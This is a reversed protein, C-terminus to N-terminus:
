PVRALSAEISWIELSEQRCDFARVKIGYDAGYGNSGPVGPGFPDRSGPATAVGGRLHVLGALIKRADAINCRLSVMTQYANPNRSESVFGSDRPSVKWGQAVQPTYRGRALLTGLNRGTLDLTPPEDLVMSLSMVWDGSGGVQTTPTMTAIRVPLPADIPVLPGFPFFGADCVLNVTNGQATDHVLTRIADVKARPGKWTWECSYTDLAAGRDWSRPLGNTMEDWQLALDIKTSYGWEAGWALDVTSLSAM